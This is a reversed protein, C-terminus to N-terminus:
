IVAIWRESKAESRSTPLPLQPGGEGGPQRTKQRCLALYRMEASGAAADRPRPRARNTAGAAPKFVGAM